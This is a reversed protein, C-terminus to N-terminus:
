EHCGAVCVPGTLWCHPLRDPEIVFWPSWLSSSNIPVGKKHRYSINNQSARQVKTMTGYPSFTETIFQSSIRTKVHHTKVKTVTSCQELSTSSSRHRVQFKQWLHSRNLSSIWFTSCFFLMSAVIEVLSQLQQLLTLYKRGFLLRQM